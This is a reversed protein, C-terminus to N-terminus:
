LGDAEADQVLSFTGRQAIVIGLDRIEEIDVVERRMLEARAAAPTGGPTVSNAPRSPPKYSPRGPRVKLPSGGIFRRSRANPTVNIAVRATACSRVAGAGFASTYKMAGSFPAVTCPGIVM